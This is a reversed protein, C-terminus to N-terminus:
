DNQSVESRRGRRNSVEDVRPLVLMGKKKLWRQGNEGIEVTGTLVIEWCVLDAFFTKLNLNTLIEMNQVIKVQDLDFKNM